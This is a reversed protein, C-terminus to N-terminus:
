PRASAAPPADGRRAHEPGGSWLVYVVPIAIGLALFLGGRGLLGKRGSLMFLGSLALVLLGAAYADAVVTWARKGRNLHLWNSVRLLLRPSQGEDLVHGTSPTVHLSRHPLVIELSDAGARYVESPPERVDLRALVARSISDDDGALTGLEHTTSRNTFSPDWDAIHNVALGSAAYVFTLGVALHGLDRHVARNLARVRKGWGSPAGVDPTAM